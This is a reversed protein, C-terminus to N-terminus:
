MARYEKRIQMILNRSASIKDRRASQWSTVSTTSTEKERARVCVYTCARTWIEEDLQISNIVRSVTGSVSRDVKLFVRKENRSARPSRAARQKKRTLELSNSVRPAVCKQSLHLVAPTHRSFSFVQANKRREDHLLVLPSFAVAMRQGAKKRRENAKYANIREHQYRRPLVYDCM